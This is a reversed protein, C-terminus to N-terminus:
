HARRRPTGNRSASATTSTGHSTPANPARGTGAAAGSSCWAPSISPTLATSRAAISAAAVPERRAASRASASCGSTSKGAAAGSDEVRDPQYGRQGWRGTGYWGDMPHRKPSSERFM